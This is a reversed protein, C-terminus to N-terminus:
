VGDFLGRDWPPEGDGAPGCGISKALFDVFARVKPSLNRTHAFVAYVSIRPGEWAPLVRELRGDRVADAVIFTPQIVIGAGGIAAQMLADGNNLTMRGPVTIARKEGTETQTLSWVGPRLSYAYHLCDHAPLDDPAALRGRRALYSPAACLILRVPALRRAVLTSDPLDAIRVAIDYGEDVLDVVRDNLEMDVSVEPYTELYEAMLTSLHRQGFSMPASVRLLGRPVARLHTVAEEAAFAEEVLRTGHHYLALGAETTSLRRTTRNLLRTGLRDELRAVHKSVASKSLGLTEAAGSFSKADVVRTFVAISALSDIDLDPLNPM